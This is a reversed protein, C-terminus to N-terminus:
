PAPQAPPKYEVLGIGKRYVKAGKSLLLRQMEEHDGILADQHCGFWPSSTQLGWAFSHMFQTIVPVWFCFIEPM